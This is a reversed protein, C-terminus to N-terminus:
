KAVISTSLLISIALLLRLLGIFKVAGAVHSLFGGVVGIESINNSTGRATNLHSASPRGTGFGILPIVIAGARGLGIWTGPYVGGIYM